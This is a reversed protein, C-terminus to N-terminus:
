SKKGRLKALDKGSLKLMGGDFSGMPMGGGGGGGGSKASSSDGGKKAKKKQGKGSVKNTPRRKSILKSENEEAAREQELREQKRQEKLQAYPLCPKKKPPIAGLKIALAAKAEMRDQKLSVAEPQNAEEAETVPQDVVEVKSSALSKKKNKHSVFTVIDPSSSYAPKTITALTQVLGHNLATARLAAKKQKRKQIKKERKLSFNDLDSVCLLLDISRDILSLSKLTLYLSWALLAQNM